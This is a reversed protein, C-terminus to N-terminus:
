EGWGGWEWERLELGRAATGNRSQAPGTHQGIEPCQVQTGEAQFMGRGPIHV